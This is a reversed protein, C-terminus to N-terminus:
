PVVRDGWSKGMGSIVAVFTEIGDWLNKVRMNEDAAHQNDDYNAIPLTIIPAKLVKEFLYAPGSGGMTPVVLPASAVGRSITRLVAQGYPGDMPVRQAPYGGEWEVRM